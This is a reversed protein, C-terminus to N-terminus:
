EYSVDYQDDEEYASRHSNLFLQFNLISFQFYDHLGFAFLAQKLKSLHLRYDVFNIVMRISVNRLM